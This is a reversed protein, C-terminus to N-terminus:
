RDGITCDWNERTFAVRVHLVIRSLFCMRKYLTHLDCQHSLALSYSSWHTLLTSCAISNGTIQSAWIVEIHHTFSKVFVSFASSIPSFTNMWHVEHQYIGTQFIFFLCTWKLIHQEHMWSDVNTRPNMFLMNRFSYSYNSIDVCMVRVDYHVRHRRLDGAERNNVWGNIWVCILSFMLAGRWQGKHPFEGSVPSNGACIALLASFTEM